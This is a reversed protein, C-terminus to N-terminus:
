KISYHKILRNNKELKVIGHNILFQLADALSNYNVVSRYIETYTMPRNADKLIFIIRSLDRTNARTRLDSLATNGHNRRGRKNGVKEKEKNQM